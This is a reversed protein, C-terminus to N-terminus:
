LCAGGSGLECIQEKHHFLVQDTSLCWHQSWSKAITFLAKILMPEPMKKTHKSKKLM